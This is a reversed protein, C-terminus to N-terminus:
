EIFSHEDLKPLRYVKTNQTTTSQAMVENLGIAVPLVFFCVAYKKM